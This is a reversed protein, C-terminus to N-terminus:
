LRGQRRVPEDSWCFIGVLGGSLDGFRQSLELAVAMAISAHAMLAEMATEFVIVGRM